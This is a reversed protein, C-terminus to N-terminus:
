EVNKPEVGTGKCHACSYHTAPDLKAGTYDPDENLEAGTWGGEGECMTCPPFEEGPKQEKKLFEMSMPNGQGRTLSKVPQGMYASMMADYDINHPDLNQYVGGESQFAVKDAHRGLHEKLWIQVAEVAQDQETYTGRDSWVLIEVFGDGDIYVRGQALKYFEWGTMEIHHPRGQKPDVGWMNLGKIPDYSWKWRPQTSGVWSEGVGEWDIPGSEPGVNVEEGASTLDDRRKFLDKIPLSTKVTM